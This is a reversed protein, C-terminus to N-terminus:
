KLLKFSAIVKEHQLKLNIFEDPADQWTSYAFVYDKNEDIYTPHKGDNKVNDWEAHSYANIALPYVFCNGIEIDPEGNCSPTPLAFLITPPMDRTTLTTQMGKWDKPFQLSFGFENNTYLYGSANETIFEKALRTEQTNTSEAPTKTEPVVTESRNSEKVLPAEVPKKTLLYVVTGLLILGAITLVVNWHKSTM